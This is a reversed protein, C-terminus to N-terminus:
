VYSDAYRVLSLMYFLLAAAMGYLSYSVVRNQTDQFHLVLYFISVVSLVALVLGFVAQLVIAKEGGETTAARGEEGEENVNGAFLRRFLKMLLLFFFTCSLTIALILLPSFHWLRFSKFNDKVRDRDIAIWAEITLLVRSLRYLCEM